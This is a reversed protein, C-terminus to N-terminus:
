KVQGKSKIAQVVALLLIYNLPLDWYPRQSFLLGVLVITLADDHRLRVQSVQQLLLLWLPMSYLLYGVLGYMAVYSVVSATSFFSSYQYAAYEGVGFLPADAIIANSVAVVHGRTNSSSVGSESDSYLSSIRGVSYHYVIDLKEGPVLSLLMVGLLIIPIMLSFSRKFPIVAVVYITSLIIFAISFTFFGLVYMLFVIKINGFYKYNIIMLLFTVFGFAGPEDFIGAGRLFRFGSFQMNVASFSGLYLGATRGDHLQLEMLPNMDLMLVVFFSLANGILLFVLLVTITKLIFLKDSNLYCILLVFIFATRLIASLVKDFGLYDTYIFHLVQFCISTAFAVYAVLPLEVRCKRLFVFLILSAIALVQHYPAIFNFIISPYLVLLPILILSERKLM